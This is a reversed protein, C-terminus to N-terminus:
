SAASDIRLGRAQTGLVITLILFAAGACLSILVGATFEGSQRVIFDGRSFGWRSPTLWISVLGVLLGACALGVPAMARVNGRAYRRVAVGLVALAALVAVLWVLRLVPSPVPPSYQGSGSAVLRDFASRQSFWDWAQLGAYLTWLAAGTLSVLWLSRLGDSTPAMRQYQCGNRRLTAISASTPERGTLPM